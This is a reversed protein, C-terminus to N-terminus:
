VADIIGEHIMIDDGSCVKMGRKYTIIRFQEIIFSKVAM